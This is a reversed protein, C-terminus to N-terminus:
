GFIYANRISYNGYGTLNYDVIVSSYAAITSNFKTSNGIFEDYITIEPSVTFREAPEVSFSDSFFNIPSLLYVEFISAYNMFSVIEISNNYSDDSSSVLNHTLSLNTRPYVKIQDSM